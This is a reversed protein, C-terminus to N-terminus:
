ELFSHCLDGTACDVKRTFVLDTSRSSRVLYKCSRPLFHEPSCQPLFSSSRPGMHAMTFIVASAGVLGSCIKGLVPVHLYWVYFSKAVCVNFVMLTKIAAGDVRTAHSPTSSGLVSNM